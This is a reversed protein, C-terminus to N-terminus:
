PRGPPSSKAKAGYASYEQRQLAKASLVQVKGSPDHKNVFSFALIGQVFPIVPKVRNCVALADTVASRWLSCLEPRDDQKCFDGATAVLPQM